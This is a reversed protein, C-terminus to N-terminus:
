SLVYDSKGYDITSAYTWTKGHAPIHEHLTLGPFGKENGNPDFEVLFLAIIEGVLSGHWTIGNGIGTQVSLPHATPYDFRGDVSVTAWQPTAAISPKIDLIAGKWGSPNAISLKSKSNSDALHIIAKGADLQGGGIVVSGSNQANVFYDIRSTATCNRITARSAGTPPLTAVKSFAVVSGSQLNASIDFVVNEFMIDSAGPRQDVTIPVAADPAALDFGVKMRCDQFKLDSNAVSQLHVLNCDKFGGRVATFNFFSSRTTLRGYYNVREANFNVRTASNGSNQIDARYTVYLSTEIEVNRLTIEQNESIEVPGAECGFSGISSNTIAVKGLPITSIQIDSRFRRIKASAHIRNLSVDQMAGSIQIGDAVCGTLWISDFLASNKQTGRQGSVRVNPQQEWLTWVYSRLLSGTPPPERFIVDAPLGPAPPARFFDDHFLRREISHSTLTMKHNPKNPEFGLEAITFRTKVSDFMGSAQDGGAEITSLAIESGDVCINRLTVRSNGNLTVHLVPGSDSENPSPFNPPLPVLPDRKLITAVGEGFIELSANPDVDIRWTSRMVAPKIASAARVIIPPIIWIGSPIYLKGDSAKANALAIALSPFQSANVTM